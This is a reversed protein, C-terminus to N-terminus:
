GEAPTSGEEGGSSGAVDDRQGLNPFITAQDVDDMDPVDSLDSEDDASDHVSGPESEQYERREDQEAQESGQQLSTEEVRPTSVSASRQKQEPQANGPALSPSSESIRPRATAPAIARPGDPIRSVALEARKLVDRRSIGLKRPRQESGAITVPVSIQTGNMDMVLNNLSMTGMGRVALVGPSASPGDVQAAHVSAPDPGPINKAVQTYLVAWADNILDDIPASKMLGSNLKKLESSERLAELAPHQMLPDATWATLRDSLVDFEEHLVNKFVDDMSAPINSTRRIMKLYTNCAETWVKEFRHFDNGKKRVRKVLAEMSPKDNTMWLLRTMYNVYREMYVCHRGPREADPKWVQIHMTKTFISERFELKAAQAQVYDPNSEDYLINAARAIMRHHWHQKDSNRLHRLSELVFPEWEEYDAIAVNEGKRIAFPQQQLLNAGAQPEMARMMVLKHVVSVLKYHPELIPEQRSDRPKPVHKIANVFARLVEDVAPRTARLREDWEDDVKCLMKWLCKGLMFHTRNINASSTISPKISVDM